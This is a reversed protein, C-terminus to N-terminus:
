RPSSSFFFCAPESIPQIIVLVAPVGTIIGPIILEKFGIQREPYVKTFYRAMALVLGMKMFESPQMRIPGLVLWRQAGMGVKGMLLVLFILFLTGVYAVYSFREFTKPNLFSILVATTISILFWITQSKYLTDLGEHSQSHTSSYLNLVGVLFIATM